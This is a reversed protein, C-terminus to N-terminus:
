ARVHIRGATTQFQNHKLFESAKKIWIVLIFVFCSSTEVVFAFKKTVEITVEIDNAWAVDALNFDRCGMIPSFVETVENAIPILATDSKLKAKGPKANKLLSKIDLHQRPYIPTKSIRGSKTM